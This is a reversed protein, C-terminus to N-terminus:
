EDGSEFKHHRRRQVIYIQPSAAVKVKL